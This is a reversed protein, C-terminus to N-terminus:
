AEGVWFGFTPAGTNNPDRFTLSDIEITDLVPLSGRLQINSMVDGSKTVIDLRIDAGTETIGFEQIVEAPNVEFPYANTGNGCVFADGVTYNDTEVTGTANTALPKGSGGGVQQLFEPAGVM